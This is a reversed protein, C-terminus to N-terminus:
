DLRMRVFEFPIPRALGFTRASILGVLAGSSGNRSARREAFVTCRWILPESEPASESGLHLRSASAIAASRRVGVTQVHFYCKGVVLRFDIGKKMELM